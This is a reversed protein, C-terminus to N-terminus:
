LNDLFCTTIKQIDKKNQETFVFLDYDNDNDDVLILKVMKHEKFLKLDKNTINSEFNISSPDVTTLTDPHFVVSTDNDIKVMVAKISLKKNLDLKIGGKKNWRFVFLPKYDREMFGFQEPTSVHSPSPPTIDVIGITLSTKGTPDGKFCLTNQANAGLSFMLSFGIILQKM